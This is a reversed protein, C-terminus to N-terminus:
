VVAPEYANPKPTSAALGRLELTAHDAGFSNLWALPGGRFPPYGTGLIMALDIDAAEQTIGENACRSAENSLLLALRHQVMEVRAHDKLAEKRSMGKHIPYKYFGEGSKRGLKGAALLHDLTDLQPLRDPYAATLTRAVHAAVDLGIEDLLRLPGMPMGFELMSEDIVEAPIGSDHLRVAEMLYPMLIRNVVFGPSDCVVVPVKGLSQVFSVATAIVDDSTHQTTVVEVLPMRHVPNFFHLGIVREPHPLSAALETVSLASTNTALITDRGARAALEAFIKKKVAMDETAAEIVLPYRTLPVPSHAATIRDLTERMELRTIARRKLGEKLSDNIRGLGRAVLEPSIEKLLVQHGRSAVWHAIGAGMVGGGVVAVDHVPLAVGRSYHRKGAEEKRFFLDIINETEQTLALDLIAHKELEMAQKLPAVSARTAVDIARLPALYLGRTKEMVQRRVKHALGQRVGPWSWWTRGLSLYREPIGAKVRRRAENEMEERPVVADVLGIRKASSPKMLKGTVICELAAALGLLRPLRTSGGWAPVLGMQTEPLGIKTFPSNSAIRVDCALATEFGGGVCAGHILAIKPIPMAELRNFVSQGLDILAELRKVSLSRVAKLDAGAIMIKDKASRIVLARVDAHHAVQDLCGAFELLTGENWVNAASGATDFTLWAIGDADVELRFNSPPKAPETTPAPAARIFDLANLMEPKM